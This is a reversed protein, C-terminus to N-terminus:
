RWDGFLEFAAWHFPHSSGSKGRIQDIQAARLAEDKSKGDRLYGYFRQMIRSTSLDSISWLSALVTRAGAYQFARTLGVLGEGGMERGLATDCASLTVLDANLRVSELIEWAQLLGNDRGPAPHEPITLALASNLPFREDLLGHCAFHVLRAEAGLSKAKEETAEGGLYTEAQPYLSAIGEVERRTAPIPELSLGRSAATLIELTAAPAANRDKPLPPYVPDGFAVVQGRTLDAPARRAKKLEAYVTASLVFHVPKWEVLYRDKRMLTAFPLTHLPGSPSVLLRKAAAIQAEAPGILLAYLKRSQATLAARDSRADQLLNDLSAIAERLPKAGVPIRFVALGPGALEPPQVVFLYSEEEGVAYSLLVTEPDLIRRAGALDLPEPYQLSALRPSSKRIQATLERQRDQIERLRNLLRKIEAADQAPNLRALAGQASELDQNLETKRRAIEPPLNAAFLLDREALQKLFARARGRELVHFAEAVQGLEVRAALCDTFLSAEQTEKRDSREWPTESVDIARCLAEMADLPHGQRRLTLGLSHLSAGATGPALKERIALAQRYRAEAEALDGCELGIDGLAELTQADSLSGPSLRQQIAFARQLHTEATACDQRRLAVVGLNKLGRAFALGEPELKEELSLARRLYEEARELNGRDLAQLGLNELTIALGAGSPDRKEEIALARQLFYESTETDYSDAALDSLNKLAKALELSEPRTREYIAKARRLLEESEAFNGRAGVLSGLNLLTGAIEASGPALDEQISLARRLTDEASALDGRLQIVNGLNMLTAALSLSRPALRERIALAQRLHEEAAKLDSHQAAMTGLTHLDWSVALGQPDAKRDLDLSRRLLDEAEQWSGRRQFAKGWVKAIWADLKAAGPLRAQEAAESFLADASPWKRAEALACAARLLFWVALRGDGAHGAARAASRWREVAMDLQEAGALSRGEEYLALLDETLVPRVKISQSGPLLVWATGVAARKGLIRVGGRPAEELEMAEFDFPTEFRGAALCPGDPSAARCWSVLLDGAQLGARAGLSEAAVEEVLVGPARAVNEEHPGRVGAATCAVVLGLSLWIAPHPKRM